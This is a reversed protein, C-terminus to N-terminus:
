RLRMIALYNGRTDPRLEALRWPSDNVLAALESESCLLYDFFETALRRHRVRIRVQGPLRGQRRNVEQYAVHVPDETAYPDVGSAIIRAGPVAVTALESLVVPARQASGLLGLNNGLLLITTFRGLSDPLATVSGPFARVGRAQAVDVAGPSPDVGVVEVGAAGLPRAHRGAGCGVDLVRGSAEELASREFAPWGDPEAFYRAADGVSVLGDSREIVEFAVGPLAGGAQCQRLAEGFADGIEPRSRSGDM